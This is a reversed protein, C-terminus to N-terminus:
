RRNDHNAIIAALRQHESRERHHRPSPALYESLIQSLENHRTRLQEIDRDTYAINHCAPRCDDLDPTRKTQDRESANHCLAKEPDFVCTMARGPYIQLLPNNVLDHAQRAATLVRGAFTTHSATVRHRYLDAAPGTVTEGKGLQQHNHLLQDLRHLWNEYARETPFGSDYTGAYGLSVTLDLHGYQIAGAILGRPRRMIHWALTRRLRSAAIPGHPDAPIYDPLSPQQVTHNVWDILAQIDSTILAANRAARGSNRGTSRGPHLHNPLLLHHTHLEELVTVARAAAAVTTWPDDRTQGEPIKEGASDRAGKFKRGRITWLGTLPDHTLCGRELHLVEGPRMGTLYAIVVFCATRLLEALEPAEHYAVPTTRWPRQHLQATIPTQLYANDDIPLGSDSILTRAPRGKELCQKGLNLLRTLHAWDPTCQGTSDVRGPLAAGAAHLDHLYAAVIRNADLATMRVNTRNASHHWLRVYERFAATVDTAFDDVFRLSWLLLAEITDVAIRPTRNEMRVMPKGLLTRITEGDWPPQDPLRMGAPLQDRYSWLRRVCSLFLAKRAPDIEMASVDDLYGDLDPSTVHALRHISRADLWTFFGNLPLLEQVISQLSLRRGTTGAIRRAPPHNILQWLYHKATDRLPQPVTVFRIAPLRRHQEFAGDSVDWRDDGFRSLGHIDTAHNLKRHLLVITNPDPLEDTTRRRSTIRNM